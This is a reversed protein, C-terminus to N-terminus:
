FTIGLDEADDKANGKAGKRGDHLRFTPLYRYYVELMLTCLTTPYVGHVKDGHCMLRPNKAKPDDWSGDSNQEAVLVKTFTANWEKWPKNSGTRTTSAQFLAQTMYYWQYLAGEPAEKWDCKFYPKSVQKTKDNKHGGLYGDSPYRYQNSKLWKLGSKAEASKGEGFLQLCLVGIATMSAKGREEGGKPGGSYSFGGDKAKHTRKIGYIARDIADELGRVTCGAAFAAKMAQYQWGAVSLDSRVSGIPGYTKNTVKQAYFYDYSGYKNMGAVVMKIMRNMADKVMPIKTLAYAESLAYAVMAHGYGNGSQAILRNGHDKDLVKSFAILKKIAKMVTPGFEKSEPTEGHALFCLTALATMAPSKDWSGDSQQCRKLYRLAKMVAGETAGDVGYKDLAIKRGKATRMKFDKGVNLSFNSNNGEMLLGGGLAVDIQLASDNVEIDAVPAEAEETPAVDEPEFDVDVDETEVEEPPEPPEPPEEMPKVKMEVMEVELDDKEKQPNFIIISSLLSLLIIHFVISIVPGTMHDTIDSMTIKQNALIDYYDEHHEGLYHHENSGEASENLDEDRM